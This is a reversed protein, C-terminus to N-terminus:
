PCNQQVHPIVSLLDSQIDFGSGPSADYASKIQTGPSPLLVPFSVPPGLEGTIM